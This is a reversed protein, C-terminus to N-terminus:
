ELQVRESKPYKVEYQLKLEKQTGPDLRIVWNVEGTKENLKGGSLELAKVEIASIAAVPVQDSVHITVAESKRNRINISFERSDVKNSGIFKKSSFQDIKERDISINSDQGLSVSLTDSLMGADLVTKGVYTNEYFLSTEGELLNYDQWNTIKAILYAKEELKPM